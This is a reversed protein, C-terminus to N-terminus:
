RASVPLDDVVAHIQSIVVDTPVPHVTAVETTNQATVATVATTALVGFAAMTRIDAQIGAGSGSDSGAITLVVPPHSSETVSRDHRRLPEIGRRPVAPHDTRGGPCCPRRAGRRAHSPGHPRTSSGPNDGLGGHGRRVGAGHGHLRRVRYRNRCRPGRTRQGARRHPRHQPSQPHRPWQRHPLRSAHGCRLRGARPPPCRDPDDACYPLVVFGADVLEEAASVLEVTDPLLSRDDGIVELKVWDTEFAERALKATLVAETATFCGATNPLIGIDLEDLLGVLSHRTTPDVRRVAVTALSAGSEALAGRLSELSVMGGTGMLLRSPVTRGAIVLPAPAPDEPTILQHASVDM